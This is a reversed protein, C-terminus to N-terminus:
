TGEVIHQDANSYDQIDFPITLALCRDAATTKSCSLCTIIRDQFIFFNGKINDIKVVQNYTGDM